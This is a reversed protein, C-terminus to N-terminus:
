VSCILTLIRPFTHTRIGLTVLFYSAMQRITVNTFLCKHTITLVTIVHFHLDSFTQSYPRHNFKTCIDTFCWIIGVCFKFPCAPCTWHWSLQNKFPVFARYFLSLSLTPLRHCGTLCVDTRLAPAHSSPQGIYEQV